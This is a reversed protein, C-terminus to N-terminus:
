GERWRVGWKAGERKEWDDMKLGKDEGVGERQGEGKM